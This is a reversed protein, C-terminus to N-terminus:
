IVTSVEMTRSVYDIGDYNGFESLANIQYLGLSDNGEQYTTLTCTLSVTFGPMDPFTLATQANVDGCTGGSSIKALAWELGAKAAHYARANQMAYTLTAHQVGSLRAMYSGLLGLVVLIFIAM